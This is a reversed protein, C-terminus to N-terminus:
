RAGSPRSLDREVADFELTVRNCLDRVNADRPEARAPAPDDNRLYFLLGLDIPACSWGTEVCYPGWGIDASSGFYEWRRFDFSRMWTGDLLRSEERIQIRSLYDGLSEFMRLLDRDGTIRYAVWLHMLAFGTDYLQDSVPNGNEQMISTEGTGFKENSNPALGDWELIAGCTDQKSRIFDTLAGIWGKVEETPEYRYLLALPFLMRVHECSRSTVLHWGKYHEMTYRISKRAVDFYRRDGTVAYAYLLGAQAWGMIHPCALAARQKRSKEWSIGLPGSGKYNRYPVGAWQGTADSATRRFYEAGRLAPVLYRSDGTFHYFLFCMTTAAGSDDNFVYTTGAPDYDNRSQWHGYYWNDTSTVQYRKTVADMMNRGIGHWSEEKALLGYLYFALASESVCDVRVCGAMSQTGNPVIHSALGERVGRSGDPAVLMGANRFWDVNRRLTQRYCENRPMVSLAVQATQTRGARRGEVTFARPGASFRLDRSRWRGAGDAELPIAGAAKDTASVDSGATAEVVLRVPQEPTVWQRPETWARLGVYRSEAVARPGAPLLELVLHRLLCQWAASPTYRGRASNSLATVAVLLKAKGRSLRFLAPVNEKPPGFVARDFGAVHGYALLVDAGAPPHLPLRSSKHAELITLSPLGLSTGAETVFLREFRPTEIDGAAMDPIRAYEVYVSAGRDLYAQITQWAAADLPLLKPYAEALIIVAGAPQPGAALKTLPLVQHPLDLDELTMVFANPKVDGYVVVPADQAASCVCGLLSLIVLAHTM